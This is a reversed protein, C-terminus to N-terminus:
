IDQMIDHLVRTNTAYRSGNTELSTGLQLRFNAAFARSALNSSATRRTEESVQSGPEHPSSLERGSRQALRWATM